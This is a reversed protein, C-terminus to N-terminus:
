LKKQTDLLDEAVKILFDQLPEDLKNYIFSFESLKKDELIFMDGKGYRLWHENVHFVLCISIINKETLKNQGREIDSLSTQKMGIKQAFETQSLNLAKRIEIIRSNM